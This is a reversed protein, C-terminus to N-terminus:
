IFVGEKILVSVNSLRSCTNWSLIKYDEAQKAAAAPPLLSPLGTVEPTVWRWLRAYKTSQLPIKVGTSRVKTCFLVRRKCYRPCGSTKFFSGKKRSIRLAQAAGRQVRTGGRGQASSLSLSPPGCFLSLSLSPPCFLSLSSLLSLSPLPSLLSLSPSLSSISHSPSLSSLSLPSLPSLSFPPPPPSFGDFSCSMLFPVHIQILM